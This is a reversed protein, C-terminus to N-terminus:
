YRNSLHPWLLNRQRNKLLEMEDHFAKTPMHMDRYVCEYPGHSDRKFLALYGISYDLNYIRPKNIIVSGAGTYSSEGDLNYIEIGGAVLRCELTENSIVLNRIGDEPLVAVGKNFAVVTPVGKFLQHITKMDKNTCVTSKHLIKSDSIRIVYRWFEKPNWDIKISDKRTIVDMILLNGHILFQGVVDMEAGIAVLIHDYRINMRKTEIFTMNAGCDSAWHDTVNIYRDISGGDKICILHIDESIRHIVYLSPLEAPGHLITKHFIVREDTTDTIKLVDEKIDFQIFYNHPGEGKYHNYRVIKHKVGLLTDRVMNKKNDALSM